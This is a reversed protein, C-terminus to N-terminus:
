SILGKPLSATSIPPPCPVGAIGGGNFSLDNWGLDDAVILVVNPRPDASREAAPARAWPVEQTPGTPTRRESALSIGALMLEIRFLYAGAGLLLVALLAARGKSFRM